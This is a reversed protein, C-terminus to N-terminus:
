PRKPTPVAIRKNATCIAGPMKFTAPDCPAASETYGASVAGPPPPAVPTAAKLAEPSGEKVPVFQVFSPDRWINNVPDYGTGGKYWDLIVADGTPGYGHLTQPSTLGTGGQALALTAPVIVSDPIVPLPELLGARVSIQHLEM